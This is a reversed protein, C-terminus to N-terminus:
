VRSTGFAFFWACRRNGRGWGRGIEHWSVALPVVCCMIEAAVPLPTPLASGDTTHTPDTGSEVYRMIVAAWFFFGKWTHKRRAAALKCAAAGGLSRSVRCNGRTRCGSQNSIHSTNVNPQDNQSEKSGPQFASLHFFHAWPQKNCNHQQEFPVLMACSTLGDGTVLKGCLSLFQSCYYCM